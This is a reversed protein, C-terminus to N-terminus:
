ESTFLLSTWHTDCYDIVLFIGAKLQDVLNTLMQWLGFYKLCGTTGLSDLQQLLIGKINKKYVDMQTVQLSSRHGGESATEHWQRLDDEGSRVRLVRDSGKFKPYVVINEFGKIGLSDTLRQVLTHCLKLRRGVLGRPRETKGDATVTM